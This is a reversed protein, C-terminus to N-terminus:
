FLVGEFHIVSNMCFINITKGGCDCLTHVKESLLSKNLLSGWQGKVYNVWNLPVWQQPSYSSNLMDVYNGMIDERKGEKKKKTKKRAKASISCGTGSILLTNITRLTRYENPPDAM